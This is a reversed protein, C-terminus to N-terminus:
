GSAGVPPDQGTLQRWLDAVRDTLEPWGAGNDVVFDARALWEERAPQRAMRAAVQAASLGRERLRQRRVETPADVVVVPAGALRDPLPVEYVVLQGPRGGRLREAALVEVRPHVIAELSALRVPEDFVLEALRARDLAGDEALVERGFEAVVAALGDSGPSVVERALQDADVVLAGWEALLRGVASKGSGIGGTLVIPGDALRSSRQHQPDM